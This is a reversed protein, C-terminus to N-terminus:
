LCPMVLNGTRDAAVVFTGGQVRLWAAREMGMMCTLPSPVPAGPAACVVAGFAAVGRWGSLSCTTAHFKLGDRATVRYCSTYGRPSTKNHPILPTSPCVRVLTERAHVIGGGGV